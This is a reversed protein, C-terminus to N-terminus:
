DADYTSTLSSLGQSFYSFFTAVLAFFLGAGFGLFSWQLSLLSRSELDINGIFTLLAILAGGNVIFLSRLGVLAFEITGRDLSGVEHYLHAIRIKHFEDLRKVNDTDM